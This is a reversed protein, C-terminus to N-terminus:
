TEAMEGAGWQRMLAARELVYTHIAFVVARSQPLRLLVQRESRMYGAEDPRSHDRPAQSSRPQHLAPDHYWLANHRWLPRGPQVGDFLRQVRAAIQADYSDVPVHIGILPRSMKESLSWSAPFCLIAGTLVHEDGRKQLICFDQQALQCLSALPAQWDLVVPQGDLATIQAGDHTAAEPYLQQLVARLLEQAPELAGPEMQLVTDRREALLRRRLAVQAAFAEDATLWNDMTAPQIGPLRRQQLPNYPIQSQLITDM